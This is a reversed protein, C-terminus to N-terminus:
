SSADSIQHQWGLYRQLTAILLSSEIKMVTPKEVTLSFFVVMEDVCSTGTDVSVGAGRGWGYGSSSGTVLNNNDCRRIEIADDGSLNVMIGDVVVHNTISKLTM